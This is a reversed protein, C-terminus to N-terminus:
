QTKCELTRPNWSEIPYSGYESGEYESRQGVAEFVTQTGSVTKILDQNTMKTSGCILIDFHEGNKMELIM